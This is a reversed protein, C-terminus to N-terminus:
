IHFYSYRNYKNKRCFGFVTIGHEILQQLATATIASQCIVVQPRLNLLLPVHAAIIRHSLLLVPYYDHHKKLAAGLIKCASSYMTICEITLISLDHCLMGISQTAGTQHYITQSSRFMRVWQIIMNHQLHLNELPSPTIILESKKRAVFYRDNDSKIHLESSINLETYLLGQIMYESHQPLANMVWERDEFQIIHPKEVLMNDNNSSIKQSSVDLQKINIHQTLM